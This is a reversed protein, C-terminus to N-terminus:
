QDIFESNEVLLLSFAFNYPSQKLLQALIHFIIHNQPFVVVLLLVGRDLKPKVIEKTLVFPNHSLHVLSKLIDVFSNLVSWSHHIDVSEFSLYHLQCAIPLGGLLEGVLGSVEILGIAVKICDMGFVKEFNVFHLFGMLDHSHEAFFVCVSIQIHMLHLCHPEFDLAALSVVAELLEPLGQLHELEDVYVQVRHQIITIIEVVVRESLYSDVAIQLHYLKRVFGELPLPWDPATKSNQPSERFYLFGPLRFLSLFLKFLVLL